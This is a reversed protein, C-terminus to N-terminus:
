NLYNLSLRQIDEKLEKLRNQTKARLFLGELFFLSDEDIYSKKELSKSFNTLPTTLLQEGFIENYIGLERCKKKIASISNRSKWKSINQQQIGIKEALESYNIVNFYSMLKELIIEAEM